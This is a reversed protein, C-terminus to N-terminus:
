FDSYPIMDSHAVLIWYPQWKTIAAMKSKTAMKSKKFKKSKRMLAKLLIVDAM